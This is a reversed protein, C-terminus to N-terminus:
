AFFKPKAFKTPDNLLHRPTLAPLRPLLGVLRPGRVLMERPASSLSPEYIATTIRNM